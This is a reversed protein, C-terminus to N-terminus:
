WSGYVPSHSKRNGDSVAGALRLNVGRGSVGNIVAPFTRAMIIGLGNQMASFHSPILETMIIPCVRENTFNDFVSSHNLASAAANLTIAFHVPQDHAFSLSM